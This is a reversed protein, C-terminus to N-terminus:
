GSARLDVLDGLGSRNRAFFTHPLKGIPLKFRRIATGHVDLRSITGLVITAGASDFYGVQIGMLPSNGANEIKAILAGSKTEIGMRLGCVRPRQGWGLTVILNPLLSGVYRAPDASALVATAGYRMTSRRLGRAVIAATLPDLSSAFEDALWVRKGSDILRAVAFRYLQGDSLQGPRRMYLHAETLGVTNLLWIADKTSSGVEDVLPKSAHDLSLVSTNRSDIGKLRGRVHIMPSSNLRGRKLLELLITKGAGSAGTVLVVDRECVKLDLDRFMPVFGQPRLGFVDSVERSRRTSAPAVKISCSVKSLSALVRRKPSRSQIVEIEQQGRTQALVRKRLTKTLPYVLYPKSRQNQLYDYQHNNPRDIWKKKGDFLPTIADSYSKTRGTPIFGSSQFFGHFDSMSAIAEVLIPRAGNVNWRTRAFRILHKVILAGIGIGRFEPHVVVRSIRAIKNILGSQMQDKFNTQLLQFRPSVAPFAASLIGYGIIGRGKSEVLLTARRGILRDSGKGRYHFQELNRAAVWDRESLKERFILELRHPPLEVAMSSRYPPWIPFRDTMAPTTRIILKSVRIPAEGSGEIELTDGIKVYAYPHIRITRGNALRVRLYNNGKHIDVIRSKLVHCKKGKEGGHSKRREHMGERDRASRTPGTM